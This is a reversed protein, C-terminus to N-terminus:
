KWASEGRHEYAKRKADNEAIHYLLGKLGQSPESDPGNIIDDTNAITLNPETDEAESSNFMESHLFKEVSSLIDQERITPLAERLIPIARRHINLIDRDSLVESVM